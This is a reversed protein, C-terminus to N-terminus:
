AQDLVERLPRLYTEYRRWRGISSTFLPQRVQAQSHTRVARENEHFSLFRDNWELGCYEVLRRAENEFDNVLTEYQVDLMAGDPLVSHWHAMLADYMRYYRGLEGLDYTYDLGNLFLKSYCSFCTDMPDRRVHIIKANPLALHILGLHQFNGPFKDVVHLIDRPLKGLRRLYEKGFRSVAADQLVDRPYDQGVMGEAILDQVGTLEGAGLVSPDSGLIQEVLSTGSRPMGVVFIPLSSGEGTAHRLREPTFVTELDAFFDAVIGEDYTVAQRRLTNAKKLHEFASETRVLDDYAKALAFNLESKQEDPLNERALAEMPPLRPDGDRFLAIEALARHYAARKPALAVARELAARAEATNGLQLLANGTGFHAAANNPDISLVTRFARLAEDTRGLINLADGAGSLAAINTSQTQLVSRFSRLAEEYNGMNLLAYGLDCRIAPNGRTNKDAQRLHTVADGFRNERMAVLGLGHLAGPHDPFLRRVEGYHRAADNLRNQRHAVMALEYQQKAASLREAPTM